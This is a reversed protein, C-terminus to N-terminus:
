DHSIDGTLPGFDHLIKTKEILSKLYRSTISISSHGLHEKVKVLDVGNELLHSAISHRFMHSSIMKYKRKDINKVISFNENEFAKNCINKVIKDIFQRTLSNIKNLTNKKRYSSVFLYESSRNNLIKLRDTKSYDLIIKFCPCPQERFKGGKGNIIIYPNSNNFKIDSMKINILESVRLGCYYLIFIISKDRKPYKSNNIFIDSDLYDLILNMEKTSLSQPDELEKNSLKQIPSEDIIKKFKLYKFFSSLTYIFRKKSSSSRLGKEKRIEENKKNKWFKIYTNFDKSVYFNEIIKPTIKNFDSLNKKKLYNLFINLDNEYSSITNNTSSSGTIKKHKLFDSVIFDM